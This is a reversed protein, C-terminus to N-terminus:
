LFEQAPKAAVRLAPTEGAGTTPTEGVVAASSVDGAPAPQQKAVIAELSGASREDVYHLRAEGLDLWNSEFPYEKEWIGTFARAQEVITM